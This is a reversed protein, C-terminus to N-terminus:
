RLMFIENYEANVELPLHKFRGWKRWCTGLTHFDGHFGDIIRVNVEWLKAAPQKHLCDAVALRSQTCHSGDVQWKKSACRGKALEEFWCNFLVHIIEHEYVVSTTNHTAAVPHSHDKM